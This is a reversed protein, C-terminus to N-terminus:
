GHGRVIMSLCRTSALKVERNRMLFDEQAHPAGFNNWTKKDVGRTLLSEPAGLLPAEYALYTRPDPLVGEDRAKLSSGRIVCVRLDRDTGSRRDHETGGCRRDM